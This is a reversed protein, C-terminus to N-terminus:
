GARFCAGAVGAWGAAPGPVPALAYACLDGRLGTVLESLVVLAPLGSPRGQGLRDDAAALLERTRGRLLAGLVARDRSEIEALGTADLATRGYAAGAHALEAAVVVLVRTDDTLADLVAVLEAVGDHVATDGTIAAAGCLLAVCPPVRDGWVHQLYLTAWELSHSTRHRIAERDIWDLRRCMADGLAEACPVVGLPTEYPKDLLAFPLLGPHHDAGVLIVADVTTPPPLRALTVAVSPGVVDFPGHPLLVARTHPGAAEIAGFAALMESRLAHAGAPYLVGALTPMRTPAAFFADHLQAWRGRFADGELFGAAELEAVFAHLEDLDVDLNRGMLLSQRVQALTRTGDLADLVPAFDADIAFPEAIGLPDRLAVHAEGDRSLPIREVNRLKPRDM